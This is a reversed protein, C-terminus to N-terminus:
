THSQEPVPAPAPASASAAQNLADTNKRITVLIEAFGPDDKVNAWDKDGLLVEAQAFGLEAARELARLAERIRKGGIRAEICGLNYYHNPNKPEWAIAQQCYHRAKAFDEAEMASILAPILKVLPDVGQQRLLTIFRPRALRARRAAENIDGNVRALIDELYIKEVASRATAFDGHFLNGFPTAEPEKPHHPSLNQPLDAAGIMAHDHLVALREVLHELERVNGPWNYTQLLRMAEETFGTPFAREGRHRRLFHAALLPIDDARARLPPLTITIVHLRYYLDARFTGAEVDKQLERNTAAIVRANSQITDTGGVRNFRGGQLVRLLKSQLALSLEGIEDLFLTGRDAQEFRGVRRDTAGTFAGREHGFLESELLNEPIAACNVEVFPHGSRESQEHIAQAVLQKGTGTEGLILVRNDRKSALAILELIAKMAPVQSVIMTTPAPQKPAAANAPRLAKELRAVLEDDPLPFEIFDHYGAQIAEAARSEPSAAAIMVFAPNNSPQDIRRLFEKPDIERISAGVLIIDPHTDRIRRIARLPSTCIAIERCRDKLRM